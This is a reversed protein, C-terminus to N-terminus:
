NICIGSIQDVIRYVRLYRTVKDKRFMKELEKDRQLLYGGEAFKLHVLRVAKLSNSEIMINDDDIMVDVRETDDGYEEFVTEQQLNNNLITDKVAEFFKSLDISGNGKRHEVEYIEFLYQLKDADSLTIFYQWEAYNVTIYSFITRM